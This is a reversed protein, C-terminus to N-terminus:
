LAYRQQCVGAGWGARVYLPEWRELIRRAYHRNERINAESRGANFPEVADWSLPDAGAAAALRKDRQVWGLGGNYAYLAFAWQDCPTHGQVRALHWQNYTVMARM